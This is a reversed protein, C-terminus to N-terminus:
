QMGGERGQEAMFSRSISRACRNVVRDGFEETGATRPGNDSVAQEHFLLEQDDITRSSARGIKRCQVPKQKAEPRKKQIWTMNLPSRHNNLWRRKKFEM